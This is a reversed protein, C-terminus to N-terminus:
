RLHHLQPRPASVASGIRPRCRRLQQAINLAFRGLASAICSASSSTMRTVYLVMVGSMVLASHAAHVSASLGTAYVSVSPLSQMENVSLRLRIRTRVVTTGQFVVKASTIPKSVIPVEAKASTLVGEGGVTTNQGEPHGAHRYGVGLHAELSPGIWLVDACTISGVVAVEPEKVERQVPVVFQPSRGYALSAAGVPKFAVDGGPDVMAEHCCVVQEGGVVGFAITAQVSVIGASHPCAAFDEVGVDNGSGM